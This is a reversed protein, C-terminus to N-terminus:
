MLGTLFVAIVGLKKRMPLQLRSIGAIPLILIYVDLVLNICARPLAVALEQAQRPGQVSQQLTEGPSPVTLALYLALMATYFLVNVVLGAYASYRLWKMPRFLQIYLM